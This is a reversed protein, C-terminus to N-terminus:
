VMPARDPRPNRDSGSSCSSIAGNDRCGATRGQLRLGMNGRTEMGHQKEGERGEASSRRVKIKCTCAGDKSCGSAHLM